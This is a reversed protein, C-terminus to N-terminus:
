KHRAYFDVKKGNAMFEVHQKKSKRKPSKAKKSKRKKPMQMTEVIDVETLKPKKGPMKTMMADVEVVKMKSKRKRRGGSLPSKKPASSFEPLSAFFADLEKDSIPQTKPM